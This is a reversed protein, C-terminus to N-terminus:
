PDKWSFGRVGSITYNVYAPLNTYAFLIYQKNQPELNAFASPGTVVENNRGFQLRMMKKKSWKFIIQQNSFSKLDVQDYPELGDTPWVSNLGWVINHTVWKDRLVKAASAFQSFNNLTPGLPKFIDNNDAANAMANQVMQEVQTISYGNRATLVVIRTGFQRATNGETTAPWIAPDRPLNYCIRFKCFVKRLYCQDGIIDERFSSNNFPGLLHEFGFLETLTGSLSTNTIFMSSVYFKTEAAGIAIRRITRKLGGRKRGFRRKKGHKKFKKPM